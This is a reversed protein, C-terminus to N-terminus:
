ATTCALTGHTDTRTRLTYPTAPAPCPSPERRYAASSGSASRASIAARSSATVEGKRVASRKETSSIM